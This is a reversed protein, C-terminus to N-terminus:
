STNRDKVTLVHLNKKNLLDRMCVRPSIDPIKKKKKQCLNNPVENDFHNKRELNPVGKQPPSTRFFGNLPTKKATFIKFTAESLCFSSAKFIFIHILEISLSLMYLHSWKVM